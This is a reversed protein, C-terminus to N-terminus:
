KTESFEVKAEATQSTGNLQNQAQAMLWITTTVKDGPNTPKATILTSLDVAQALIGSPSASEGPNKKPSNLVFTPTSWLDHNLNGTCPSHFPCRVVDAEMFIGVSLIGSEQDTATALSNLNGTKQPLTLTQTQGGVTATGSVGNAGQLAFGLTLGPPSADSTPITVGGGGGSSPCGMLTVLTVTSLFMVGIVPTARRRNQGPLSM